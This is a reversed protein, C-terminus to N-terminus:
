PPPILETEAPLKLEKIDARWEKEVPPIGPNPSMNWCCIAPDSVLPAPPPIISLMASWMGPKPPTMDGGAAVDDGLTIGDDMGTNGLVGDLM